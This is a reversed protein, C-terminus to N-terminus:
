GEVAEAIESKKPWRYKRAEAVAVARRAREAASYNKPHGAALKGLAVANANKARESM